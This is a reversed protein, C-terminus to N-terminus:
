PGIWKAMYTDAPQFGLLSLVEPLQQPNHIKYGSYWLAVRRRKLEREVCRMLPLVVGRGKMDPVIYMVDLHATLTTGYHLGPAVQAIYYAAIQGDRRVTALFLRGQNEREIYEPYQPALPMRDKFLALDQWHGRILRDIEPLALRFSEVQATIM